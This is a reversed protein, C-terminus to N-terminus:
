GPSLIKWFEFGFQFEERVAHSLPLRLVDFCQALFESEVSVDPLKRRAFAAVADILPGTCPTFYVMGQNVSSTIVLVEIRSPLGTEGFNLRLKGIKIHADTEILELLQFPDFDILVALAHVRGRGPTLWNSRWTRDYLTTASALAHVHLDPIGVAIEEVDDPEDVSLFEVLPRGSLQQSMIRRRLGTIMEGPQGILLNAGRHIRYLALAKEAPMAVLFLYPRGEDRLVFLNRQEAGIERVHAFVADDPESRLILREKRFDLLVAEAEQKSDGPLHFGFKLRDQAYMQVKSIIPVSPSKHDDFAPRPFGTQALKSAFVEFAARQLSEQQLVPAITLIRLVSKSDLTTENLQRLPDPAEALTHRVASAAAQMPGRGFLASFRTDPRDDPFFRDDPWAECPMQLWRHIIDTQMAARACADMCIGAIFPRELYEFTQTFSDFYGQYEPYRDLLKRAFQGEGAVYLSAVTSYTEHTVIACDIMRSILDAFRADGAGKLAGALIMCSGFTTSSNLFAHFAEHFSAMRAEASSHDVGLKLSRDTHVPDYAGEAARGIARELQLRSRLDPFSSM